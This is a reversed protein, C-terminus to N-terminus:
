SNPTTNGEGAPANEENVQNIADNVLPKIEKEVNVLGDGDTDLLHNVVKTGLKAKTGPFYADAEKLKETGYDVMEKNSLSGDKNKDINKMQEDLKKNIAKPDIQGNADRIGDPIMKIANDKLEDYSVKGDKKRPNDPSDFKDLFAEAIGGQEDVQLFGGPKLGADGAMKRLEKESIQGDKNGDLKNFLNKLPSGAIRAM